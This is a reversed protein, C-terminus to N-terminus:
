LPEESRRWPRLDHVLARGTAADVDLVYANPSWTAVLALWSRRAASDAGGAETERVFLRGQPGRDGRVLAAALARALVVNDLLVQVAAAALERPWPRGLRRAGWGPGGTLMAAVTALLAAVAGWVAIWRSWMGVLLWWWATLALWWLAVRLVAM